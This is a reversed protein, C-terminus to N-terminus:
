EPGSGYLQFVFSYKDQIKALAEIILDIHKRKIFKGAYVINFCTPKIDNIEVDNTKPAGSYVIENSVSISTEESFYRYLSTSRCYLVDFYSNLFGILKYNRRINRKDSEHVVGVKKIMGFKNPIVDQTSTPIHSVIIDPVFGNENTVKDIFRRVRKRQFSNLIDKQRYLRQIECMAVDVGEVEYHYGKRYYDREKHSFYRKACRIPQSYAYIVKVNHTNAWPRILYHIASSDHFLNPRDKIHYIPTIVMINM